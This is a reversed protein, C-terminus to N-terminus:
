FKPKEPLRDATVDEAHLDGFIARYKEAGKKCYWFLVKDADGLKVGDAKYGFNGKLEFQFFASSAAVSQIRRIMKPDYLDKPEEKPKYAQWDDPKAPFTGGSEEAYVRFLNILADEGLAIPVDIKKLTYGQPTELRFLSDDLKPDIQFDSLTAPMDQNMIHITTEMLLPLKREPDIWATWTTGANEVRFGQAEVDGIRRKGAPKGDNGAMARLQEIQNGARDRLRRQLDADPKWDQLMAIKSSPDLSLIKGQNTDMITVVAQPPESESRFLGPDKYYERGTIKIPGKKGPMEPIQTSFRISLTHADHLKQVVEAFTVTAEVRPSFALYSLGAAAALAAASLKLLTLMTRRWPFPNLTPRDAATRLAARTQAIIDAGPGEPVPADRLVAEARALRDDPEPDPPPASM